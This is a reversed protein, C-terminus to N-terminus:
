WEGHAVVKGDNLTVTAQGEKTKNETILENIKKHASLLAEGSTRPHKLIQALFSM